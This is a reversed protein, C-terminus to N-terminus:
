LHGVGAGTRFVTIPYDAQLISEPQNAGNASFLQASWNTGELPAGTYSQIGSPTDGATNGSLSASSNGPEPGFVQTSYINTAIHNNFVVRGQALANTPILLSIGITLLTGAILISRIQTGARLRTIHLLPNGWGLVLKGNAVSQAHMTM